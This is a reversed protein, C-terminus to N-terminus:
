NGSGPDKNVADLYAQIVAQRVNNMRLLRDRLEDSCPLPQDADDVLDDFRRVIARLFASTGDPTRLDFKAIEDVDLFNFTTKMSEPRHGGDSPTLLKVERTFTRHQAVKFM